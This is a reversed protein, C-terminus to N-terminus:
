SQAAEPPCHSVYASAALSSQEVMDCETTLGVRQMSGCPSVDYYKRVTTVATADFMCSDPQTCSDVVKFYRCSAIVKFIHYGDGIYM